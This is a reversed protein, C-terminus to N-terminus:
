CLKAIQVHVVSGPPLKRGAAPETQCVHPSSPLLSQLFGGVDDVSASLGVRRLTATADSPNTGTLDPVAIAIQRYIRIAGMADQVNPAGALVDLVNV